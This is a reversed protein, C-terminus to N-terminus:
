WTDDDDSEEGICFGDPVEDQRMLRGCNVLLTPTDEASTLESGADKFLEEDIETFAALEEPSRALLRNLEAPSTLAEKVDQESAAKAADTSLGLLSRLMDLRHEQSASPCFMGAGMIKKELDLKERCRKEMHQEVGSKTLLRFVRVENQQGFRHARAIAQKDNQPNWDLDFLIVTDAAQLNLGLGGARASLLFVSIGGKPDSFAAMQRKREEHSTSGDLRSFRYGRWDLFKGLVDLASTFQSFILTKHGFKMLKTLMRDLAEVKGAARFLDPGPTYGSSFLYPHLVIKRLQMLANNVKRTEVKDNATLLRITRQQLDKYATSQWTSLEIRIISEVKPPLRDVMVQAKTRQLLFPALMLHLRTIIVAEDEPRLSVDYENSLDKVGRLPELFWQTFDLTDPFLDPLIYHLLAWLENLNNQLPTGTLLMRTRSKMKAMTEHLVSKQNKMRHGEDIIILQWDFELLWDNRHIQEYNTIYVATKNHKVRKRLKEKLAEREEAEGMVLWVKYSPAFKAFEAEWNSLTSKPAVILHPGKDNKFEKLWLLLAISQITKGLGMEDALIGHLNNVYISALWDLGEIQYPMLEANLGEPLIVSERATHILRMYAERKGGDGATGDAGVFEELAAESPAEKGLSEATRRAIGKMRNDMETLVESLRKERMEEISLGEFPIAREQELRRDEADRAAQEQKEREKALKAQEAKDKRQQAKAAPTAIAAKKGKGTASAAVPEPVESNLGASAPTVGGAEPTVGNGTSVLGPGPQSSDPVTKQKSIAPSDLEKTLGEKKRKQAPKSGADVERAAPQQSAESAPQQPATSDNELTALWKAIAAEAVDPTMVKRQPTVRRDSAWGRMMSCTKEVSLGKNSVTKLASIVDDVSMPVVDPPVDPM